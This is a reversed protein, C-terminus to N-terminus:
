AAQGETAERYLKQLLVLLPGRQMSRDTEYRFITSAATNCRRALESQSIPKDPSGLLRRLEAIDVKPTDDDALPAPADSM